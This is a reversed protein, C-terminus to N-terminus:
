VGEQGVSEGWHSPSAQLSTIQEGTEVGGGLRELEWRLERRLTLVAWSGEPAKPGKPLDGPGRVLKLRVQNGVPPGQIWLM